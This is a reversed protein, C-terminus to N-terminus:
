CDVHHNGDFFWKKPTWLIVHGKTRRQYFQNECSFFNSIGSSSIVGPTPQRLGLPSNVRWEGNFRINRLHRPKLLAAEVRTPLIVFAASISAFPDFLLASRKIGTLAKFVLLLFHASKQCLESRQMYSNGLEKSAATNWLSRNWFWFGRKETDHSLVFKVIRKPGKKPRPRWFIM